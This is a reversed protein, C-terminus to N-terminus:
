IFGILNQLWIQILKKPQTNSPYITMGVFASM